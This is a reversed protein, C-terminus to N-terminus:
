MAIRAGQGYVMARAAASRASLSAYFKVLRERKSAESADLEAMGGQRAKKHDNWKDCGKFVMHKGSEYCPWPRYENVGEVADGQMLFLKDGVDQTVRTTTPVYRINLGCRWKDSTNERSSHLVLPHHVSVDGPALEIDVAEAEDVEGEVSTGLVDSGDTRGTIPLVGRRHSGPIIRLCGNEATSSNVALWLNVPGLPASPDTAELGFYSSDQHWLVKRGVGPPKCLYHSVFLSIHPGVIAEAIALLREDAVVRLWFPDV